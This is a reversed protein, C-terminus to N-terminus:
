QGNLDTYSGPRGKDKNEPVTYGQFGNWFGPGGPCGPSGWIM